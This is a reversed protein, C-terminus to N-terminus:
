VTSDGQYMFSDANVTHNWFKIDEGMLTGTGTSSTASAGGFYGVMLYIGTAQTGEM